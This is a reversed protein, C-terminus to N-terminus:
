IAGSQGHDLSDIRWQWLVKAKYSSHVIRTMMPYSGAGIAYILYGSMNSHCGGRLSLVGHFVDVVACLKQLTM